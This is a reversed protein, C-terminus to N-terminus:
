SDYSMMELSLLILDIFIGVDTLKIFGHANEIFPM